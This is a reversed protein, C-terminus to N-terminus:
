RTALDTTFIFILLKSADFRKESYIIPAIPLKLAFNSCVAKNDCVIECETQQSKFDYEIAFGKHGDAYHGWMVTSLNDESLCAINRSPAWSFITQYFTQVYEDFNHLFINEMRSKGLQLIQAFADSREVKHLIRSLKELNDPELMARLESSPFGCQIPKIQPEIISPDCSQNICEQINHLNFCPTWEFPDNFYDVTSGWIEDKELADFHCDLGARYRFLSPPTNALLWTRLKLTVDNANEVEDFDTIFSSYLIESFANRDIVIM